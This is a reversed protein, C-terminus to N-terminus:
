SLAKILKAMKAGRKGKIEDHSCVRLLRVDDDKHTYLLLVDAALHCESIGKLPGSLKHDKMEAPLPIPPIARKNHNFITM